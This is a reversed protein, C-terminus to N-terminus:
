TLLPYLYQIKIQKEERSRFSSPPLDKYTEYAERNIRQFIDEKERFDLILDDTGMETMVRILSSGFFEQLPLRIASHLTSLKNGTNNSYHVNRIGELKWRWFPPIHYTILSGGRMPINRLKELKRGSWRELYEVLLPDLHRKPYVIKDHIPYRAM